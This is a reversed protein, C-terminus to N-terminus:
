RQVVFRKWGYEGIRVIYLGQNWKSVDITNNTGPNENEWVLKGQLDYIRLAAFNGFVNELDINLTESATNPYLLASVPFIVNARCSDPFPNLELLGQNTLERGGFAPYDTAYKEARFVLNAPAFPLDPISDGQSLIETNTEPNVYRWVEDGNSAVEFFTGHAGDCILTNGNPLRQAGSIFWSFFDEPIDTTYEWAPSAPAFAEGPFWQYNGDILLPATIEIVSSHLREQASGNNFIMINGAGTLGDTIWKADHQGFLQQDADTGARYAEPNGWRYLFDGGKNSRGGAHTAAEQTTTSHDIIYIESLRQSGLVIQDLEANYDISNLHIWDSEGIPELFDNVFNLDILEPHSGVDGFNALQPDRDQILHDWLHWEWVIEGTEPGTPKVEIVAESWISGQPILNPDRGADLAQAQSITEWVIILVNGNPLPEIDHHPRLSDTTPNYRWQVEGEWSLIRVEEGGGAGTISSNVNTSVATKMLRGDELLYLSNALPRETEWKHVVNGCNDILYHTPTLLPSYLTYGPFAEPESTFLGVTRVQASLEATIPNIASFLLIALGLM